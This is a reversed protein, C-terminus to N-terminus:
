FQANQEFEASEALRNLIQILTPTSDQASRFAFM